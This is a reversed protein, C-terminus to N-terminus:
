PFAPVSVDWDVGCPREDPEPPTRPSVPWRDQGVACPRYDPNSGKRTLLVDRRRDVGCGRLRPKRFSGSTGGTGPVACGFALYLLAFGLMSIFFAIGLLTFLIAFGRRAM